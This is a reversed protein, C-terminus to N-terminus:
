AGERAAGKGSGRNGVAKKAELAIREEDRARQFAPMEIRTAEGWNETSGKRLCARFNGRRSELYGRLYHINWYVHEYGWETLLERLTRMEEEKRFHSPIEENLRTLQRTLDRADVQGPSGPMTMQRPYSETGPMLVVRGDALKHTAGENDNSLPLFSRLHDFDALRSPSSGFCRRLVL